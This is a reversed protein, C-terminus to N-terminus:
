KIIFVKDSERIFNLSTSKEILLILDSLPVDRKTSVYFEIPELKAKDYKFQVGYWVAIKKLFYDLSVQEYNFENNVWAVYGRVDVNSVRVEGGAPNYDCKQNPEMMVEKGAEAHFGVSGEVLVVEIDGELDKSANFETGYVKVFANGMKVIFPHVSKAVKFYAEGDLEVEREGSIGAVPYKLRSGANLTVVSGDALEVSYSYGAPVILTNYEVEENAGVAGRYVLRERTVKEIGHRGGPLENGAEQLELKLGNNLVLVPKGHQGFQEMDVSRDTGDDMFQWVCFGLVVVAAAVSSIRKLWRRTNEKKKKRDKLSEVLRQVDQRKDRAARKEHYRMFLEGSAMRELFERDPADDQLFDLLKECSAMDRKDKMAELVEEVIEHIREYRSKDLEKM